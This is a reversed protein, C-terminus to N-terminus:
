NNCCARKPRGAKKLKLGEWKEILFVQRWRNATTKSIGLIDAISKLEVGQYTMLIINCRLLYDSNTYQGNVIYHLKNIDSKTLALNLANRPM